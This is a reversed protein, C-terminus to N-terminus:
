SALTWSEFCLKQGPLSEIWWDESQSGLVGVVLNNTCGFTMFLTNLIFYLSFPQCEDVVDCTVVFSSAM